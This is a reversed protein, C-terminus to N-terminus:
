DVAALIEAAIAVPDGDTPTPPLAETPFDVYRKALFARYDDATRAGDKVAFFARWLPLHFHRMLGAYSRHAYDNLGTARGWSGPTWTTIMRRYAAVAAARDKATAAKTLRAEKRDLRWDDSCALIRDSLDFLRLFEKRADASTECSPLLERAKDALLQQFIEVFDYRFTELKLLAPKRKASALVHRAAEVLVRRPYATGTKPGWTSVSTIRYSPNACLVSEVCGEQLKACDWVSTSCIYQARKLDDDTYGYRRLRYDELWPALQEESVNQSARDPKAFADALLDYSVPNTELGESLIAYGKFADCKEQHHKHPWDNLLKGLNRFRRLGGHMGTNGGFNMVEAWVWPLHRPPTLSLNHYNAAMNGTNHLGKDLIEILTHDPDLGNRLNQM